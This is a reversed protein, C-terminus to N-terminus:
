SPELFSQDHSADCEFRRDAVLEFANAFSDIDAVRAPPHYSKKQGLADLPARRGRIQLNRESGFLQCHPPLGARTAREILNKAAELLQQRRDFVAVSPGHRPPRFRCRV